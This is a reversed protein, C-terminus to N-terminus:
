VGVVRLEGPAINSMADLMAPVLSVLTEYRNNSAAVVVVSLPLPGPKQQFQLNRDVTLFCGFSESAARLLQGNKLGAFGAEYATSVEHGKLDAGLRKPVCEDLLVRM